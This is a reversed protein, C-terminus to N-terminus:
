AAQQLQKLKNTLASARLALRVSESTLVPLVARIEKESKRRRISEKLLGIRKHLGHCASVFESIENKFDESFPLETGAQQRGYVKQFGDITKMNVILKRIDNQTSRSYNMASCIVAFFTYCCVESVLFTIFSSSYNPPLIPCSDM